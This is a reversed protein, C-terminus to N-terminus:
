KIAYREKLQKMVQNMQELSAFCGDQGGMSNIRLNPFARSVAQKFHEIFVQSSNLGILESLTETLEIDVSPHLSKNKTAIEYFARVLGAYSSGMGEVNIFAQVVFGKAQRREAMGCFKKGQISMDFDGPCYGGKIEGVKVESTWSILSQRILRVMHGFDNCFNIEPQVNPMVLSINVVGLDLPVAAGGSNRVAVEYGLSQLWEVAKVINPLRSDRLGLVFAKPHRWIHILAGSAPQM